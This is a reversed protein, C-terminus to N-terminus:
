AQTVAAAHDVDPICISADRNLDRLGTTVSILRKNSHGTKALPESQYGRLRAAEVYEPDLLFVMAADDASGGDSQFTPMWRDPTIRLDSGFDSLFTNVTGMATGPAENNTEGTLTAIRASATFLYESFARCINPHSLFYGPNGGEMWALQAADRVMTETLAQKAGASHETWQGNTFEGGSFGNGTDLKKCMCGFGAPVGATDSAKDGEVNAQNALLNYNERRRLEKMRKNEQYMRETAYGITDVADALHSVTYPDDLTGANNGLREGSKSDDPTVDAGDIVWGGGTPKELVDTIWSYYVDDASAAGILDLFVNEEPSIDFVQQLVDENVFGEWDVDKLQDATIATVPM